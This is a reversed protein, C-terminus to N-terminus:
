QRQELAPRSATGASEVGAIHRAIAGAVDQAHTSIMFHAAGAITAVSADAISQALLENARRMAPHSAGGRLVVTPVDINALCAPTLQFDYAAAWDLINVPTTDIAYRRVREPWAAFTGAGGYFDIMAEIAATQGARFANFYADTMDRFARYHWHEGAHRLLEPVPAEIIVLSRVPVRKRLAVTLAVAGGFSHGVLHVPSAARRIVAELIEAERSIDADRLTRREATGGYGLLSTTVSRLGNGLEAIVPRWAAGTSCSGPVLVVTPGAGSEAYDIAGRDDEIM